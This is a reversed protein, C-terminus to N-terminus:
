RTRRLVRAGNGLMRGMRLMYKLKTTLRGDVCISRLLKSLIFRTIVMGTVHVMGVWLM